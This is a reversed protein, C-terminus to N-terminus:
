TEDSYFRNQEETLRKKVTHKKVNIVIAYSEKFLYLFHAKTLQCSQIFLRSTPRM